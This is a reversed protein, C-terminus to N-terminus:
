LFKPGRTIAASPTAQIPMMDNTVPMKKRRPPARPRRRSSDGDVIVHTRRAVARALIATKQLYRYIESPFECKQLYFGNQLVFFPRAPRVLALAKCIAQPPESSDTQPPQQFPSSSRSYSALSCVSNRMRSCSYRRWRSTPARPCAARIGGGFDKLSYRIHTDDADTRRDFRRPYFRGM